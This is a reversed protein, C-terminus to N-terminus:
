KSKVISYLKKVINLVMKEKDFEGVNHEFPLYLYRKEFDISSYIRNIEETSVIIDLDFDNIIRKMVKPKIPHAACGVRALTLGYDKYFSAFKKIDRVQAYEIAHITFPLFPLISKNMKRELRRFTREGLFSKLETKSNIYRYGYNHKSNKIFTYYLVCEFIAKDKGEKDQCFDMMYKLLGDNFHTFLDKVIRKEYFWHFGELYWENKMEYKLLMACNVSTKYDLWDHYHENQPMESYFVYPNSFYTDFMDDINARKVFLSESDLVLAQDYDIFRLAYLKKITQYSYRGLMSLLENSKYHMGYQALIWEINLCKCRDDCLNKEFSEKEKENSLIFYMYVKKDDVNKVFSKMLERAYTFHLEYSPVILVRKKASM